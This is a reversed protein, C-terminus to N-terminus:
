EQTWLHGKLAAGRMFGKLM